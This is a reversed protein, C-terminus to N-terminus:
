NNLEDTINAGCGSITLNVLSLNTASIFAIGVPTQCVVKTAPETLHFQGTTVNGDGQLTLNEFDKVTIFTPDSFQLVHIGSLFVIKTNSQFVMETVNSRELSEQLSYCPQEYAVSPCTLNGRPITPWIFWTRTSGDGPICTAVKWTNFTLVLYLILIKKNGAIFFFLTM